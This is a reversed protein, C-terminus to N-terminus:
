RDYPNPEAKGTEARFGDCNDNGEKGQRGDGM